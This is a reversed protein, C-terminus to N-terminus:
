CGVVHIFKGQHTEEKWTIKQDWHREPDRDFLILWGEDLNLTELYEALQDLGQERTNPRYRIKLEVAYRHEGLAICLDIRGRGASYERDIRGGGNIIRQLFAQLILHPAAEKYDYKEVWIDSNERWFQQFEKLLATMDIRGNEIFRGALSTPLQYQSDYTLARVIVEQYIRNAPVVDGKNKALLGLDFTYAADDSSFELNVQKGLLVPEMIRRVRPEKLRELLSDIHTDRRLIINEVAVEVLDETITKSTDNKLIESVMEYAVANCLWPQGNTYHFLRAVVDDSFVQGTAETHQRLLSKLEVLTFNRITLAKSVINFPSASGLTERENRIMSKYDRINRMGVLALSHVFPIDGREVYGQRLQRLFSILTNGVLCDAEDIMLVLPKDISACYAALSRRLAAGPAEGLSQSFTKVTTYRSFVIADHLSALIIKMAREVDHIGEATELTCYVGLYTGDKNLRRVFERILTTKGVQRPAHIVFFREEHVLQMLDRSRAEAPVMYHKDEICPGATNFFKPM